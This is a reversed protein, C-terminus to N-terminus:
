AGPPAESITRVGDRDILSVRVLRDRDFGVAVFQQRDQAASVDVTLRELEECHYRNCVDSRMERPLTCGQAGHYLCSGAISEGPLRGLYEELARAPTLEPHAKLYRRLTAPRLFAHDEGHRCCWGRCSTCAARVLTSAAAPVPDGTPGEPDGAADEMLGALKEAFLTRRAPHGAEVPRDSAPLVVAVAGPPTVSAADRLAAERRDRREAERVVRLRREDLEGRCYDDGCSDGECRRGCVGCGRAGEADLRRRYGQGCAPRECTPKRPRATPNLLLGCVACREVM